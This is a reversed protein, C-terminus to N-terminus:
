PKPAREVEVPRLQISLGGDVCLTHGNAPDFCPGGFLVAAQAIEDISPYRGLPVLRILAPAQDGDARTTPSEAVPGVALVRTTIGATGYELALGRAVSELGARAADYGILYRHAVRAGVSGIIVISGPVAAARLTEAFGHLVGYATSLDELAHAFHEPTTDFARRLGPVVGAAYYLEARTSAAIVDAVDTLAHQGNVRAVRVGPPADIPAPDVAIVTAGSKALLRTIAAGLLGAAGVVVQTVM